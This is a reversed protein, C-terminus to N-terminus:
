IPSSIMGGPWQWLHMRGAAIAIVVGQSEIYISRHTASPGEIASVIPDTARGNEPSEHGSLAISTELRPYFSYCCPHQLGCGRDLRRDPM